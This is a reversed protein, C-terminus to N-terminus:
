YRARARIAGRRLSAGLPGSRPRPRRRRARERRCQLPQRRAPWVDPRSEVIAMAREMLEAAARPRHAYALAQGALLLARGTSRCEPPRAEERAIASLLERAAAEYLAVYPQGAARAEDAQNYLELAPLYSRNILIDGVYGVVGPPLPPACPGLEATVRERAALERDGYLCVGARSHTRILREPWDAHTQASTLWLMGRAQEAVNGDIRCSERYVRRYAELAWDPHGYRVM